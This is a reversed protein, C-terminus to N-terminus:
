KIQAILLTPFITLIEIQFSFTYYRRYSAFWVLPLLFFSKRSVSWESSPLYSATAYLSTRNRSRDSGSVASYLYTILFGEQGSSM